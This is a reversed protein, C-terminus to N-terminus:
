SENSKESGIGRQNKYGTSFWRVKRFLNTGTTLFTMPLLNALGLRMVLYIGMNVLGNVLFAPYRYGWWRWHQGPLASPVLPLYGVDVLPTGTQAAFDSFRKRTLRINYRHPNVFMDCGPDAMIGVFYYLYPPLGRLGRTERIFRRTGPVHDAEPLNAIFYLDLLIEKQAAKKIVEICEGNSFKIGRYKDRVEESGSEITLNLRSSPSCIKKFLELFGDDPLRYFEYHITPPTQLKSFADFFGHYYDPKVSCPDTNMWGRDFGLRIARKYDEVINEPNRLIPTNRGFLAKHVKRSGGCYACDYACGRMAALIFPRGWAGTQSFFKDLRSHRPFRIWHLEPLQEKFEVVDFNSFDLDNFFVDDIPQLDNEIFSDGNRYM